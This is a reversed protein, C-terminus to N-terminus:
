GGFGTKKIATEKAKTIENDYWKELNKLCQDLIAKLHQYAYPEDTSGAISWGKKTHILKYELVPSKPTM